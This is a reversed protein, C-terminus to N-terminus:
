PLYVSASQGLKLGSKEVSVHVTFYAANQRQTGLSSIETVTGTLVTSEDTDLTVPITDGVKLSHLDMEDVDAVIELSDTHYVRALMQGRWVQQGSSVPITAIVGANGSAIKPSAGFPADQGVLTFLTDGKSVSEGPKAHIEAIVGSAAIPVDERYVIKGSGTKNDYAYDSDRFLELIKGADYEGTLVEVDYANARTSIVVGTGKEKDAKFYLIEGVHLHRCEEYDAAGSYTCELRQKRAPQLAAVAGYTNMATDASEGERAFFYRVTGDEPAFVPVTLLSFLVDGAQVSDGAEADFPALTGSFPATLDEFSSASVVGNAIGYSTLDVEAFASMGFFASSFTVLLMLSLMKKM